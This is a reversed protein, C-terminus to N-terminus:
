EAKRNATLTDLIRSEKFKTLSLAIAGCCANDDAQAAQSSRMAEGTQGLESGM